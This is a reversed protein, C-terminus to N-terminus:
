LGAAAPLGAMLVCRLAGGALDIARAVGPDCSRCAIEPRVDRLDPRDRRLLRVYRRVQTVARMRAHVKAEVVITERERYVVLDPRPRTILAWMRDIAQGNTESAVDVMGVRINFDCLDRPRGYRRLWDTLVASEEISVGPYVPMALLAPSFLLRIPSM